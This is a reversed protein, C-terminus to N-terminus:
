ARRGAANFDYTIETVTAVDIMAVLGPGPMVVLVSVDPSFAMTEPHRVPYSEGSGARIMFPRFPQARHAARLNDITM